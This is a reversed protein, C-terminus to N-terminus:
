AEKETMTMWACGFDVRDFTFWVISSSKLYNIIVIM